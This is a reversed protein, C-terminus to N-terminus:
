SAKVPSMARSVNHIQMLLDDLPWATITASQAVASVIHGGDMEQSRYGHLHLPIGVVSIFPQLSPNAAFIGNLVWAGEDYSGFRFHEEGVYGKSLDLGTIPVNYADTTRVHGFQGRVQVGAVGVNEATLREIVNEHVSEVDRVEWTIADAPDCVAVALFPFNAIEDNSDVRPTVLVTGSDSPQQTCVDIVQGAPQSDPDAWYFRPAGASGDAIVEGNRRLWNTTGIGVVPWGANYRSLDALVQQATVTHFLDGRLLRDVTNYVLLTSREHPM